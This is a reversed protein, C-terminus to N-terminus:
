GVRVLIGVPSVPPESIVTKEPTQLSAKAEELDTQYMEPRPSNNEDFYRHLIGAPTFVSHKSLTNNRSLYNNGTTWFLYEKELSPFYDVLIEDSKEQALLRVMLSFFPPQSRGIFYSRNGNPIYGVTEILHAFNKIM